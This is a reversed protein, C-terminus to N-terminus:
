FNDNLINFKVIKKRLLRGAPKLSYFPTWPDFLNPFWQHLINRFSGSKKQAKDSNRPTKSFKGFSEREYLGFRLRWECVERIKNGFFKM